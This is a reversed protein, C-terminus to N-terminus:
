NFGSVMKKMKEIFSTERTSPARLSSFVDFSMVDSSVVDFSVLENRVM